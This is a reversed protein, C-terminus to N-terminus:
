FQKRLKTLLAERNEIPLIDAHKCLMAADILHMSDPNLIRYQGYTTLFYNNVKYTENTLTVHLWITTHKSSGWNNYTCHLVYIRQDLMPLTLSNYWTAGGFFRLDVFTTDGPSVTTIPKSNLSKIMANAIKITFLLPYLNPHLRCFAEYPQSDFLDNNWTVWREEGDGFRIFFEMTTRIEPNGRYYLIEAIEHQDFDLQAVKEAATRDGVFIKLRDVHFKHITKMCLHKCEVDNKHQSLVEYPGLYRMSLKNPLPKTKDQQFLVLDGLQYMNQEHLNNNRSRKAIVENQHKQSAEWLVKLDADLLKVFSHATETVNLSDPMKFYTNDETGFHAHFPVIGSETSLQSNLIYQVLFIITPDSWRNHVREDAVLARIHRLISKNTGEVGNSEHRDVLSFVHRIGYWQLLHDVVESTLDSGPDSVLDEYVGFTAFFKFLATAMDLAGKEATPYVNVLKTALVVIVILYKNGNKDTPTITLLDVGISKRKHAAQLTRYIPQVSYEMGLRNKQCIACNGVFEEVVKLPIKHGPFYKCLAIWTKKAGHHGMRGGHVKNFLDIPQLKQTKQQIDSVQLCDNIIMYLELLLAPDDILLLEMEHIRSLWDAIINQKGPIHRILFVFSQMYTRWRIVKPVISAEIWQLNAHDTELIFPKGRVYYEVQQIGFFTGYAEKCFTDWNLAADSFKKSGLMILQYVPDSDSKEYYVQLLAYGVGLDSADTRLIWTLSYDPYYLTMSHLLAEKFTNIANLRDITWSSDDWIFNKHTMENLPAALTSYHPVFSKFYLAAGLFSQMQKQTKPLPITTVAKKRDESLCFKKDMCEYGFFNVKKFGLWSKSFKLYLNVEICRDFIVELKKYADEYDHALILLNDFIAITWESFEGFIKDIMEQLELTAPAIGEPMFKPQVQGWPTVISLLAATGSGLKRQHFSNVLDIDIFVSFNCMKELSRMVHPIPYHGVIIYKNLAVYDGCFRIYPPTAKPAIVLCSAVPSKSQEYFYGLLRNFEKHANEYLKPNVPRAKPKMYKPVDPKWNLELPEFGTIGEWNSPIFVKVGKTKLLEVVPTSQRFEESVHKDIMSFYEEKAEEHSMEMFHLVDPFSCPVPTELDEPAEPDPVNSWPETLEENIFQISYSPGEYRMLATQLMEVMLLGFNGIIAPLGIVMDNSSTPLVFFQIKGEHHTDNEGQFAVTLLLSETIQVIHNDAALSVKGNAPQIYPKLAEYNKEVFPKSIYSAGLAGTDFLVKNVKLVCNDLLISGSNHAAHFFNDQIVNALFLDHRIVNLDKLDHEINSVASDNTIRRAVQFSNNTTQQKQMMSIYRERTKRVTQDAHVYKCDKKTCTGYLLKAFCVLPEKITEKQLNALEHIIDKDNEACPDAEVGLCREDDTDSCDNVPLMASLEMSEIGQVKSTYSSEKTKFKTGGFSQNLTVSGLYQDYHKKVITYFCRLFVYIGKGKFQSEDLQLFVRNGYEHPIKNLFIKILGKDKNKCDPINKENNESMFEYLKLYNERHLLLAKYFPKFNTPTPHYSSPVEFVTYKDLKEAFESKNLPQVMSQTMSLLESTSLRYFKQENYAPFQALIERRIDPEILTPVPLKLRYSIEYADIAKFFQLVKGISLYTLKIHDYKPQVSHMQLIQSEDSNKEISRGFVTTRRKQHDRTDQLPDDISSETSGNMLGAKDMIHTLNNVNYDDEPILKTEELDKIRLTLSDMTSSISQFMKFVREAFPSEEDEDSM